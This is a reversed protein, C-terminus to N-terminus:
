QGKANLADAQRQAEGLAEAAERLRVVYTRLAVWGDEDLGIRNTTEIGNETTLMIYFGDFEVYAGDSLYSKARAHDYDAIAALPVLHKDSM